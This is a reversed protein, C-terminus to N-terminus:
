SAPIPYGSTVIISFLLTTGKRILRKLTTELREPCGLCAESLLFSVPKSL